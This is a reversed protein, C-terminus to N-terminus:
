IDACSVSAYGDLSVDDVLARFASQIKDVLPAAGVAPARWDLDVLDLLLLIFLLPQLFPFLSSVPLRYKEIAQAPTRRQLRVGPPHERICREATRHQPTRQPMRTETTARTATSHLQACSSLSIVFIPTFLIRRPPPHPVGSVSASDTVDVIRSTYNSEGFLIQYLLYPLVFIFIVLNYKCSGGIQPM